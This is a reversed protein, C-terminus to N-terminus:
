DNGGKDELINQRVQAGPFDHDRTLVSSFRNLVQKGDRTSGYPLRPFNIYGSDDRCDQPENSGMETLHNAESTPHDLGGNHKVRVNTAFITLYLVFNYPFLFLKEISQTHGLYCLPLSIQAFNLLPLFLFHNDSFM